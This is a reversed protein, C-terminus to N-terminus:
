GTKQSEALLLPSLRPMHAPRWSRCAQLHAQTPFDNTGGSREYRKKTVWGCDEGFVAVAAFEGVVDQGDFVDFEAFGKVHFGEDLRVRGVQLRHNDGTGGVLNQPGRIGLRVVLNQLHMRSM